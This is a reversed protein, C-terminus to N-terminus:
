NFILCDKISSVWAYLEFHTELLLYFLKLAARDIWYNDSYDYFFYAFNNITRKLEEIIIFIIFFIKLSFIFLLCISAFFILFKTSCNVIMWLAERWRKRSSCITTFLIFFLAKSNWSCLIKKSSNIVLNKIKKQHSM